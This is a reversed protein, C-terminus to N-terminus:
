KMKEEVVKQIEGFTDKIDAKGTIMDWSRNDYEDFIYSLGDVANVSIAAQGKETKLLFSQPMKVYEENDLMALSTPNAGSKVWELQNAQLWTLFDVMGEKKEDSREEKTKFMAFQDVGSGQVINEADWQPTFTEGWEFDSIEEMNSLMWTGEPLFILQQNAFLKNADEGDPVMYGADYLNKFEQVTNYSYENDINIKGDQDQWQGGMQQYLNSYNQMGWTYGFSYVGDAKAKEGAQNIEEYTVIGDDLAGPIYQDVLDKNYYMVWSGMTAPIGYQSDELTGTDWAAEVYNSRDLETGKIMDDWSDLMEQNKYTPLAESAVLALDPVGKGSKGATTLKSTFTDGQMSVLKVKFDPDTANYEDITKKIKEGDPGTTSSWLLIESSKSSNGGGSGCASLVIGCLLTAGVVIAAKSFKM